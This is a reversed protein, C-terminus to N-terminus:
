PRSADGGPDPRWLHRALDVAGRGDFCVGEAELLSRQLERGRGAPLSIEGRANIVRHWPLDHARSMAHLIRSVQRAGRPDGALRAVRGYTTVRGPPIAKIAALARRTFPGPM